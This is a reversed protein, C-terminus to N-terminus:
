AIARPTVSKPSEIPLIIETIKIPSCIKQMFSDKFINSFKSIGNEFFFFFFIMKNFLFLHSKSNIFTILGLLLIYKVTFPNIKILNQSSFGPFLNYQSQLSDMMKKKRLYKNDKRPKSGVCFDRKMIEFEICVANLLNSRFLVSYTFCFYINLFPLNINSFEVM